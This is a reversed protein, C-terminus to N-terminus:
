TMNPLSQAESNKEGNKLLSPDDLLYSMEGLLDLTIQTYKQLQHFHKILPLEKTYYSLPDIDDDIEPLEGKIFPYRSLQEHASIITSLIVLLIGVEFLLLLYSARARYIELSARSQIKMSELNSRLEDQKEQPISHERCLELSVIEMKNLFTDTTNDWQEKTVKKSYIKKYGEAFSSCLEKMESIWSSLTEEDLYYYGKCDNIISIFSNQYEVMEKSGQEYDIGMKSSLSAAIEPADKNKSIKKQMRLQEQAPGYFMKLPHHRLKDVKSEWLTTRIGYYKFSKEISQQLSFVALPYRKHRYLLKSAKLDEIAMRYFDIAQERTYVINETM